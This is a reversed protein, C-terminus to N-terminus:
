SSNRRLQYTDAGTDVPGANEEEEYFVLNTVDIPVGSYVSRIVAGRDTIM